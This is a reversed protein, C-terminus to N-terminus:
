FLTKKYNADLPRPTKSRDVKISQGDHSVQVQGLVPAGEEFMRNIQGAYSWKSYHPIM